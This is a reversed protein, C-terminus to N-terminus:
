NINLIKNNLIKRIYIKRKKFKNTKQNINKCNRKKKKIKDIKDSIYKELYNINKWRLSEKNIFNNTSKLINFIDEKKKEKDKDILLLTLNNECLLCINMDNLKSGQIDCISCKKNNIYNFIKGFNNFKDNM